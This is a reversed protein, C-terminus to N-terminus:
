STVRKRFNQRLRMRMGEEEEWLVEDAVRCTLKGVHSQRTEVM